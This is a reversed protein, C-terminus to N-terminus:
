VRKLIELKLATIKEEHKAIKKEIGQIEEIKKFMELVTNIIETDSCGKDFSDKLNIKSKAYYQLSATGEYSFSINITINKSTIYFKSRNESDATVIFMKNQLLTIIQKKFGIM